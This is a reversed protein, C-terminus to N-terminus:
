DELRSVKGDQWETVGTVVVPCPPMAAPKTTVQRSNARTTKQMRYDTM